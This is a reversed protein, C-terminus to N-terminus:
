HSGSTQMKLIIQIKPRFKKLAVNKTSLSKRVIPRVRGYNAIDFAPSKLYFGFTYNQLDDFIIFTSSNLVKLMFSRVCISFFHLIDSTLM